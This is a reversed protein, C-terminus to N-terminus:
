RPRTARTGAPLPRPQRIDGASRTAAHAEPDPLLGPPPRGDPLRRHVDVARVHRQLRDVTGAALPDARQLRHGGTDGARRRRRRLPCGPEGGGGHAERRAGGLAHDVVRHADHDRHGRPRQGGRFDGRVRDPVRPDSRRRFAGRGAPVARCPRIRRALGHKLFAHGFLMVGMLYPLITHGYGAAVDSFSMAGGVPLLVFPQLSTVAWPM